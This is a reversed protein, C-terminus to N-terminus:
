FDVELRAELIDDIPLLFDTGDVQVTIKEGDDYSLDGVFNKRGDLGFRMKVRVRKGCFRLFDKKKRLPRRVGPSSVELRYASGIPDEVDLTASVQRSALTCDKHTIGNGVDTGHHDIFLRLVWGQQDRVYQLDVLEYAVTELSDECIRILNQLDVSM